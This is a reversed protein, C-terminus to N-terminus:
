AGEQIFEYIEIATDEDPAFIWVTEGETTFLMHVGDEDSWLTRTSTQSVPDGFRAAAYQMFATAYEEADFQS